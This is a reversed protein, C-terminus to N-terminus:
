IGLGLAEKKHGSQNPEPRKEQERIRAQRQRLANLVSQRTSPKEPKQKAMEQEKQKMFGRLERFGFSDVYYAKIEGDRNLAVVDSVSMSCGNFDDPHAMNFQDFLSDLTDQEKLTDCYVMKYDARDIFLHYKMLTEIGMYHYDRGKSSTDIQYIAFCNKDNNLFFEENTRNKEWNENHFRDPQGSVGMEQDVAHSGYRKSEASPIIAKKRKRSEEKLSSKEMHEERLSFEETNEEQLFRLSEELAAILHRSAIEVVGIIVRMEEQEMGGCWDSIYPFSYVATEIGFHRCVTYAICEAEVERTERDKWRGLREMVAQDHLIAHSVEHLATKITQLESMGDRIVIEKKEYDCYGKFSDNAEDIEIDAFQIEMTSSLEIAKMFTEFNEVNGTLESM